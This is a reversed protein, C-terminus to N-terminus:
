AKKSTKINVKRHVIPARFLIDNLRVFNINCKRMAPTSTLTPSVGIDSIDLFTHLERRRHTHEQSDISNVKVGQAYPSCNLRARVEKERHSCEFVVHVQAPAM